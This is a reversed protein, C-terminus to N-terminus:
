IKFYFRKNWWLLQRSHKNNWKEHINRNKTPNEIAALISKYRLKKENTPYTYEKDSASIDDKNNKIKEFIRNHIWIVSSHKRTWNDSNEIAGQKDKGPMIFFSIKTNGNMAIENHSSPCSIQLRAIHCNNIRRHWFIIHWCRSLLFVKKEDFSDINKFARLAQKLKSKGNIKQCFCRYHRTNWTPQMSIFIM